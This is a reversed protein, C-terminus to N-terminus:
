VLEKLLVDPRGLRERDVERGSAILAKGQMYDKTLNVCDLAIVRGGRLYVVSFTRSKPDGRVVVDDHDVLLGVTQLRLDYQNSWFWPIADYRESEGLTGAISKAVVAAQDYANQVSEVRVVRGNAHVNPHAAADGIAYVDALSTKGRLDVLVGATPGPTAGATTLPETAPVIGVGVIILDADLTEGSALRVGSARGSTTLVAEVKQGLRLDVGHARHEDEFFRSLAEGAVRALLREELEILSVEKDLKRLVAAAELGIYGGGIVVVRTAREIEARLADVDSRARIFHVGAADSGECTLRRPQGGGAWVLKQYTIAEDNGLRVRHDSPDLGIVRAGLRFSVNREEWFTTPRLYLKDFAKDGALYEKSLAPREYPMVPEDGVVLISGAFKQQRLVIATQAGGHGAGVILVDSHDTM